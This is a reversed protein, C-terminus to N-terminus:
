KRSGTNGIDTMLKLMATSMDQERETIVAKVETGTVMTSEEEITMMIGKGILSAM